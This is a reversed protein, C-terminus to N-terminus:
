KRPWSVTAHMQGINAIMERRAPGAVPLRRDHAGTTILRIGCTIALSVDYYRFHVKKGAAEIEKVEEETLTLDYVAAIDKLRDTNTSTTIAVVGSQILWRLLVSTTTTDYKKAIDELVPKLPGGPHRLIPTLPGYAATVIGHEAQLARLKEM